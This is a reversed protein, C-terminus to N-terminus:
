TSEEDSTLEQTQQDQDDDLVFKRNKKESFYGYDYDKQVPKQRKELSVTKPLHKACILIFANIHQSLKGARMAAVIHQNIEWVEEGENPLTLIFQNTPLKKFNVSAIALETERSQIYSKDVRLRKPKQTSHFRPKFVSDEESKVCDTSTDKDCGTTLSYSNNITLTEPTTTPHIKMM